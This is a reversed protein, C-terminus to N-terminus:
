DGVPLSGQGPARPVPAQDRLAREILVSAEAAAKAMSEAIASAEADDLDGSKLRAADEELRRALRALDDSM